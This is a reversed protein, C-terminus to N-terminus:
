PSTGEPADRPMCPHCAVGMLLTSWTLPILYSTLSCGFRRRYEARRSGYEHGNNPRPIVIFFAGSAWYPSVTLVSVFIVTRHIANVNTMTRSTLVRGAPIASVARAPEGFFRRGSSLRFPLPTRQASLIHPRGSGGICPISFMWEHFLMRCGAPWICAPHLTGLIGCLRIHGYQLISHSLSQSM